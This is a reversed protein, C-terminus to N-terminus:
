CLWASSCTVALSRCLILLDAPDLCCPRQRGRLDFSPWVSDDRSLHLSYAAPGPATRKGRESKKTASPRASQPTDYFALPSSAKTFDSFPTEALLCYSECLIMNRQKKLWLRGYIDISSNSSSNTGNVMIRM